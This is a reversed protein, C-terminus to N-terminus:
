VSQGCPQAALAHKRQVLASLINHARPQDRHGGSARTSTGTTGPIFILVLAFFLRFWRGATGTIIVFALFFGLRGGTTRGATSIIFLLNMVTYYLLRSFTGSMSIHAPLKSINILYKKTKQVITSPAVACIINFFDLPNVELVIVNQFHNTNAQKKKTVAVKVFIKTIRNNGTKLAVGTTEIPVIMKTHM